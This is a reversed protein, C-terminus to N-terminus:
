QPMLLVDKSGDAKWLQFGGGEVKSATFCAETGSRLKQWKSCYGGEAIRYTGSDEPAQPGSTATVRLTGDANYSIVGKGGAGDDYNISKGKFAQELEQQSIKEATFTASASGIVAAAALVFMRRM